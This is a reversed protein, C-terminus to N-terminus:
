ISKRLRKIESGDFFENTISISAQTRIKEIILDCKIEHYLGSISIDSFDLDNDIKLLEYYDNNKDSLKVGYIYEDDEYVDRLILFLEYVNEYIKKKLITGKKYKFM